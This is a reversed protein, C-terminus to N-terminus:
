KNVVVGVVRFEIRRNKARGEPNDNGNNTVEPAIKKAEGHGKAIIRFREIGKSTLYNVVSVARNKSLVLNYNSDGVGDTHASIEFVINKHNKMAKFLSEDIYAKSKANLDWKNFEFYINNLSVAKEQIPIITVPELVFLRKKINNTNFKIETPTFNEKIVALKYNQNEEVNFNYNGDTNTTDSKIFIYEGNNKNKIHLEIISESSKKDNKIQNSENKNEILKDFFMKDTEFIKGSITFDIKKVLQYQFLDFCCNPNKLIKSESRNSAFFGLTDKNFKTYYIDDYPSNIPLGINIPPIWNVLEGITKYIDYGGYGILGDSSFYLSKSSKDFYPTIENGPTNIYSGANIPSKYSNTKKDFITFWIDMSGVGGPRDSVFYIVDYNKNFCKGIAPQTTTHNKSNVNDNLKEPKQWEGQEFKSVYLSNIKKGEKNRAGATFYLRRDDDSYVANSSSLSDFNFFPKPADYGGQWSNNIFKASYFKDVPLNSDQDIKIVPLSDLMLSSYILVTDNWILPASEKHAKNITSNLHTIQINKNEKKNDSAFECGEIERSVMLFYYNNEAEKGSNFLNARFMEFSSIASDYQEEYKLIQAYKFLTNPYKKWNKMYLNYYIPKAKQFDNVDFYLNALKYSIDDKNENRNYYESYYDIASYNDNIREASKAYGILEWNQMQVIEDTQTYGLIYLAVLAIIAIIKKM